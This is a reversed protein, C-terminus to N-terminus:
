TVKHAAYPNGMEEQAISAKVGNPTPFSYLQLVDSNQAPWKKTIPFASLDAMKQEKIVESFLYTIKGAIVAKM